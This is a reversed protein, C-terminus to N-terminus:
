ALRRMGFVGEINDHASPRLDQRLFCGCVAAGSQRGSGKGVSMISRTLIANLQEGSSVLLDGSLDM